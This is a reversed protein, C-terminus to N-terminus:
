PASPRSGCAGARAGGRHNAGPRRRVRPAAQSASGSRRRRTSARRTTHPTATRGPVGSSTRTGAALRRGARGNRASRPVSVTTIALKETAGRPRPAGRGLTNKDRHGKSSPRQACTQPARAHHSRRIPTRLSGPRPAGIRGKQGNAAHHHTRQRAQDRRGSRAARALRRTALGNREAQLSHTRRDTATAEGSALGTRPGASPPERAPPRCSWTTAGRSAQGRLAGAPPRPQEKGEARAVAQAGSRWSRDAGAAGGDRQTAARDRAGLAIRNNPPRRTGNVCWIM